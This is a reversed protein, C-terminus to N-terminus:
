KNDYFYEVMKEDYMFKIIKPRFYIKITELLKDFEKKTKLIISNEKLQLGSIFLLRELKDSIPRPFMLVIYEMSYTGYLPEIIDEDVSVTIHFPIISVPLINYINSKM